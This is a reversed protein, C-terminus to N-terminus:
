HESVNSNICAEINEVVVIQNNPFRAKLVAPDADTMESAIKASGRRKKAGDEAKDKEQKDVEAQDKKAKKKAEALKQREEKKREKLREKAIEKQELEHLKKLAKLSSTFETAVSKLAQGISDLLRLADAHREFQEEAQQASGALSGQSRVRGVHRLTQVREQPIPEDSSFYPDTSLLSVIEQELDADPKCSDEALILRVKSQHLNWNNVTSLM